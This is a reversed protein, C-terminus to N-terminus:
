AEDGGGNGGGSGGGGRGGFGGRGRGGFGGRGRGGFGGRGGGEGEGEYGGEGEAEYGGGGGAGAGAGQYLHQMQQLKYELLHIRMTNDFNQKLTEIERVHSEKTYELKQVLLAEKLRRESQEDREKMRIEQQKTQEGLRGLEYTMMTDCYSENDRARYRDDNFVVVKSRNKQADIWKEFCMNPKLAIYQHSHRAFEKMDDTSMSLYETLTAM